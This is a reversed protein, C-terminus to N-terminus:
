HEEFSQTEGLEAKRVNLATGDSDVVFAVVSINTQDSVNTEALAISLNKTYVNGLSVQEAPIADGLLDTLSARLVHDFEFNEVLHNDGGDYYETYNTQDAFLDSELVYVVLKLNESSFDAGFKVDLEIELNGSNISPNIALGIRAGGGTLDTAQTLNSPEPYAWDITRNLKAAPLGDIQFENKLVTHDIHFPDQQGGFPGHLGVAVLQDTEEDLLDIAYSVRPCNGCWISTYDEVLVRQTFNGETAPPPPTPNDDSSDDSSCAVFGFSLCILFLKFLHNKKMM